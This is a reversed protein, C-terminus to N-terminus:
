GAGGDGNAALAAAADVILCQRIGARSSDICIYRGGRDWRPHLDCKMDGVGVSTDARMLGIDIRSEAALDYLMLAQMGRAGPYTDTVFRDRDGPRFMPHGDVPLVGAGVARRGAPADVPILFYRENGVTPLLRNRVRRAVNVAPRLAPSGILGSRRAAAIGGSLFRSWALITADDRWDYHTVKEEALVRLNAGDREAVLLRSYIAGDNLFYRHMFAFADGSPSYQTHSVIQPTGPPAASGVRAADAISVLLEAKGTDLDVLWIGDDGPAAEGVSAPPAAAIGYAPWHVRLRGFHPAVAERGEPHVSCVAFDLPQESRTATDVICAAPRGAAVRNYILRGDPLWQARAGMQFNWASTTGLPVPAGDGPRWLCVEAAEGHPLHRIEPDVRLVALVDNAPNWPTVDHFGFFHAAVRPTEAVVPCDISIRSPL